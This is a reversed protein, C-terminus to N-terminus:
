APPTDDHAEVFQDVGCRREEPRALAYRQARHLQLELEVGLREIRQAGLEDVDELDGLAAVADELPAGLARERRAALGLAAEDRNQEAVEHSRRREGPAEIRLVEVGDDA